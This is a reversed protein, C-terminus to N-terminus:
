SAGWLDVGEVILNASCLKGSHPGGGPVIPFRKTSHGTVSVIREGNASLRLRMRSLLSGKELELALCDDHAREGSGARRDIFYHGSSTRRVKGEVRIRDGPGWSAPQGEHHLTVVVGDDAGSGCASFALLCALIAPCRM